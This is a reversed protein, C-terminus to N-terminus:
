LHERSQNPMLIIQPMSIYVNQKVVENQGDHNLVFDLFNNIKVSNSILIIQPPNLWLKLTEPKIIFRPYFKLIQEKVLNGPSIWAAPGPFVNQFGIIQSLDAFAFELRHGLHLRGETIM